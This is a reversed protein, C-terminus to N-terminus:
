PHSPYPQGPTAVRHSALWAVIDTVQQDTIPTTPPASAYTRWSHPTEEFLGALINSRLGQDSILALYAPDVLSGTHINRYREQDATLGKVMIRQTASVGGTGGNGHCQACYTAFAQQGRAPDGPTMSVYSPPTGEPLRASNGWTKIMGSTLISIQQDTLTGGKSKAFPPMATNPVGNATIHQINAAGAVVLYVPNNLWIAAGNEGNTGHCAACNHSYLTAFDTVQEPRPFEPGPSPKGPAHCGAAALAIACALLCGVLSRSTPANM